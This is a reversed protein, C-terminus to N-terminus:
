TPVTRRLGQRKGVAGRVKRIVKPPLAPQPPQTNFAVSTVQTGKFAVEWLRPVSIERLQCWAALIQIRSPGRVDHQHGGLRESHPYSVHIEENDAGRVSERWPDSRLLVVRDRIDSRRREELSGTSRHQATV